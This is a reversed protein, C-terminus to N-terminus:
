TPAPAMCDILAAAQQKMRAVCTEFNEAFYELSFRKSAILHDDDDEYPEWGEAQSPHSAQSENKEFEVYIHFEPTDGDFCVFLDISIGNNLKYKRELHRDDWIAKPMFSFQKIDDFHFEPGLRGVHPGWVENWLAFLLDILDARVIEAMLKARAFERAQDWPLYLESKDEDHSLLDEIGARITKDSLYQRVGETLQLVM